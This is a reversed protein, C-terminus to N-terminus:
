SVGASLNLAQTAAVPQIWGNIVSMLVHGSNDITDLYTKQQKNLPTEQLLKVTRLVGNMPTRIEHSMNALFESKTLNAQEAFRKALKLRSYTQIREDGEGALMFLAVAISMVFTWLGLFSNWDNNGSSTDMYFPGLGQATLVTYTVSGLVVFLSAGYLGFHRVVVIGLPLLLFFLQPVWSVSLFVISVFSITSLLAWTHHNVESWRATSWILVLPAVIMYGHLDAMLGTIFIYVWGQFVGQDHVSTYGGLTYLVILLSINLTAPPM